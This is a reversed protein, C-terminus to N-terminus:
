LSSRSLRQGGQMCMRRCLRRACASREPGIDAVSPSFAFLTFRSSDICTRAAPFSAFPERPCNRPRVDPPTLFVGGSFLSGGRSFNPM